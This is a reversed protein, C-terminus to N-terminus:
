IFKKRKADYTYKLWQAHTGTASEYKRKLDSLTATTTDIKLEVKKGDPGQVSVTSERTAATSALHLLAGLKGAADAKRKRDQESSGKEGNRLAEVIENREKLDYNFTSTWAYGKNTETEEKESLPWVAFPPRKGFLETYLQVTASYRTSREATTVGGPHACLTDHHIFSPLHGQSIQSCYKEYAKTELLAAHWVAHVRASPSLKEADWDGAHVKLRMFKHFEVVDTFPFKRLNLLDLLKPDSANVSSSM